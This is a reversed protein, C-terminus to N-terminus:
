GIMKVTLMHGTNYVMLVYFQSNAHEPQSMLFEVHSDSSDRDPWPLIDSNDRGYKIVEQQPTVALVWCGIMKPKM